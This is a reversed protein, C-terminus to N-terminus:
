LTVKGRTIVSREAYLCAVVESRILGVVQRLNFRHPRLYVFAKSWAERRKLIKRCSRKPSRFNSRGPVRLFCVAGVEQGSAAGSRFLM